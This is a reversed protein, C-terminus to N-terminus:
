ENVLEEWPPLGFFGPLKDWVKQRGEHHKAKYEKTCTTCFYREWSPDWKCLAQMAPSPHPLSLFFQDQRGMTCEYTDECGDPWFEPVIWSFTYMGQGALLSRWGSLCVFILPECVPSKLAKFEHIISDFSPERECITYLALPLVRSISTEQALNVIQYVLNPPGSIPSPHNDCEDLSSPFQRSLRKVSEKRLQHIEYKLGLRSFASM